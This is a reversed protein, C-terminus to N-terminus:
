RTRSPGPGRAVVACSWSLLLAIPAFVFRAQPTNDGFLNQLGVVAFSATMAWMGMSFIWSPLSPRWIGARGLVVGIGAVIAAEQVWVAILPVQCDGGLVWELGGRGGLGWYTNLVLFGGLFGAVARAVGHTREETRSVTVPAEVTGPRTMTKESM